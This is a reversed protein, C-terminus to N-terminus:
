FCEGIEMAICEAKQELTAPELGQDVLSGSYRDARVDAYINLNMGSQRFRKLTQQFGPGYIRLGAVIVAKALPTRSM